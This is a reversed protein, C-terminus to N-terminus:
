RWDCAPPNEQKVPLSGAEIWDFLVQKQEATLPPPLMPMLDKSVVDVITRGQLRVQAWTQLYPEQNIPGSSHCAQCRAVLIYEVDCPLYDRLASAGGGTQVPMEGTGGSSPLAGGEGGGSLDGGIGAPRGGNGNGSARGGSASSLEGGTGRLEGGFGGAGDPEVVERECSELVFLAVM